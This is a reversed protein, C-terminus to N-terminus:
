ETGSGRRITLLLYAIFLVIMVSDAIVATGAGFGMYQQGYTLVLTIFITKSMCAIVLVFKRVHEVFAAYILMIGSLGILASWNRVIKEGMPGKMTEGFNSLLSQQPSLLGLFMTCTLLGAVLMVWKFNSVFFSM